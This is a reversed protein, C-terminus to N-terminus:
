WAFTYNDIYLSGGPTSVGFWIICIGITAIYMIIKTNKNKIQDLVNTVYTILFPLFYLGVRDFLYISPAVAYCFSAVASLIFLSTM